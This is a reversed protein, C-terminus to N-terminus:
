RGPRRFQVPPGTLRELFARVEARLAEFTDYTVLWVFRIDRGADVAEGRDSLMSIAEYDRQLIRNDLM